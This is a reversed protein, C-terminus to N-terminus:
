MHIMGEGRRQRRGDDTLPCQRKDCELESAIICRWTDKELNYFRPIYSNEYDCRCKRDMKYKSYPDNKKYPEDCEVKGNIEPDCIEKENPCQSFQSSPKNAYPNYRERDECYGCRVKGDVVQTEEGVVYM